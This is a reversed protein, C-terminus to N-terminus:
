LEKELKTTEASSIIKELEIIEEREKSLGSRKLDQKRLKQKLV